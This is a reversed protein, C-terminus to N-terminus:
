MTEIQAIGKPVSHAVSYFESGQTPLAVADQANIRWSIHSNAIRTLSGTIGEKPKSEINMSTM